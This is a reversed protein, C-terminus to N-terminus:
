LLCLADQQLRTLEASLEIVYGAISARQNNIAAPRQHPIRFPAGHLLQDDVRIHRFFIAQLSFQLAGGLNRQDTLQGGPQRMFHFVPLGFNPPGGYGQKSPTVRLPQVGLPPFANATLPPPEGTGPPRPPNARPPPRYAA